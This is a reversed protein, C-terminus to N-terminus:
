WRKGSRSGVAGRDVENPDVRRGHEDTWVRKPGRDPEHGIDLEALTANLHHLAPLEIQRVRERTLNMMQGVLDLTHGGTDGVDLSCIRPLEDFDLEPFNFKITGTEVDVDLFLHHRCGVWPCPGETPCEARTAPRPPIEVDATDDAGERMVARTLAKMQISASRPRTRACRNGRGPILGDLTQIVDPESTGHAMEVDSSVPAECAAHGDRAFLIRGVWGHVPCAERRQLPDFRPNEIVPGVHEAIATARAAILDVRPDREVELEPEPESDDDSAVPAKTARRPGKPARGCSRKNHGVVGCVGCGGKVKTEKIVMAAVAEDLPHRVAVKKRGPGLAKRPPPTSAKDDFAAVVATMAEHAAIERIVSSVEAAFRAIIPELRDMLDSPPM